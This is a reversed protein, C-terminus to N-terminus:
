HHMEACRLEMLAVLNKKMCCCVQYVKLVYCSYIRYYPIVRAIGRTPASNDTEWANYRVTYRVSSVCNVVLNIWKYPVRAHDDYEELVSM